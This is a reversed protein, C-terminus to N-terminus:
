PWEGHEAHLATMCRVICVVEGEAIKRVLQMINGTLNELLELADM